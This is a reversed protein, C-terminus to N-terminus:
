GVVSAQVLEAAGSGEEARTHRIVTLIALISSTIILTLTMENAMMVGLETENGGFMNGGLMM